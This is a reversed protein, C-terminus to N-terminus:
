YRFSANITANFMVDLPLKFSDNQQFTLDVGVAISQDIPLFVTTTQGHLFVIKKM